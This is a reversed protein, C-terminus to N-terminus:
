EIIVKKVGKRGESEFQLFYVGSNLGNRTLVGVHNSLKVDQYNRITRGMIDYLTVNLDKLELSSTFRIDDGSTVPNSILQIGRDAFLGDVSLVAQRDLGITIQSYGSLNVESTPGTSVTGNDEDGSVVSTQPATLLDWTGSQYGVITLGNVSAGNDNVFNAIDSSPNWGLTITATGNLEWYEKDTVALVDGGLSGGNPASQKYSATIPTSHNAVVPAYNGNDGIPLKTVGTGLATVVGDVFEQSSGWSNGSDLQFSGLDEVTVITNSTTFVTNNKVYFSGGDAIHLQQAYGFNIFAIAFLLLLVSHFKSDQTIKQKM